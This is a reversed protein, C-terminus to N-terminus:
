KARDTAHDLDDLLLLLRRELPGARGMVAVPSPVAFLLM